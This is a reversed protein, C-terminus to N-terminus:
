RNRFNDRTIKDNGTGPKENWLGASRGAVLIDTIKGLLGRIKGWLSM